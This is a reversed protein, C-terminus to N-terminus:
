KVVFKESFSQGHSIIRLFYVGKSLQSINIAFDSEVARIIALKQGKSNTVLARSISEEEFPTEVYIKNSAPNPFIKIEENKLARNKSVVQGGDIDPQAYPKDRWLSFISQAIETNNIYRKRVFDYEDAYVRIRESGVGKGYVPVLHSTNSDSMFKMGPMVGAGNDLIPYNDIFNRDKKFSPGVLYGTEHNGLVIVLTEDWSSEDEVWDIVSNVANNFAVQEEVLRDKQHEKSAWEIAGGEVFLLFGNQNNDLVNLAADTMDSLAPVNENFPVEFPKTKVQRGPASRKQQLTTAVKPIGMVRVPTLGEALDAFQTSDHILTWADSIGDGDIDKLSNNGNVTTSDFNVVGQKLNQWTGLGGLFEKGEQWVPESSYNGNDTYYPHGCGMIVSLRSDIILENALQAHNNKDINHAEGGAVSPSSVPVSTVIGTSKGVEFARESLTKLESSDIAIGVALEATKKGTWLATAAPATETATSVGFDVDTWIEKSNYWASFHKLHKNEWVPGTMAPTTNIAYRLPWSEFSQAEGTYFDAAKVHNFGMGAGALIVINKPDPSISTPEPWLDFLVSGIESNNIYSGRVFDEEDAYAHFLSAGAGHAYLPVLQNTHRYDNWKHLPINNQGTNTVEFNEILNEGPYDPGTLFGCEHDGTVIILTEEWSSEQNVWDIAAEVSENFDQQEEILRDMQNSHGAWDVAGGEVMLFYGNESGDLINLAALTMDSLKPVNQNFPVEYPGASDSSMPYSREQQLTTAVHPVGMVRKPTPGSAMNVFETSDQIVVWSDPTGDGDIDQVTNNGNITTSDFVVEGALLDNWTGIGGLYEQGEKWIITDSSAGDDTYYPHGCGMLVRLKSDIILENAIQSYNYRNINHAAFSAPTAHSVPVSTVVGTSKALESAREVISYFVSSDIDVGVANKATKFGTAIATGSAASGTTRQRLYRPSSWASDSSYGTSHKHINDSQWVKGDLAPYTSMFYKVDFNQYPQVGGAGYHYYNTAAIQNSGWGDSIFLIINKPTDQATVAIPFIVFFFLIYLLIRKM